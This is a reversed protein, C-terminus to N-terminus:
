PQAVVSVSQSSAGNTTTYTVTFSYTEGATFGDGNGVISASQGTGLSGTYGTFTPGAAQGQGYVIAAQTITVGVDAPDITVTAATIPTGGKNDLTLILTGTGSGTPM